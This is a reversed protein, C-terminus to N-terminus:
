PEAAVPATHQLIADVLDDWRARPLGHGMGEILLLRAGPILAAAAEARDPPVLPDVAGHIVLTPIALPKLAEVRSPSRQGARQQLAVGGPAM